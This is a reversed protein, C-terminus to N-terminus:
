SDGLSVPQNGSRASALCADLVRQTDFALRGFAPEVQGELVQNAFTRIMKAEQSNADSNSYEDVWHCRARARMEFDCGLMRYDPNFTEFTLEAGFFPLVFDSLHLNGRTGSINAWQQNETTFACYFSASVGGAFFMEGSFEIPVPQDHKPGFAQRHQRGVVSEPLQGPLLTLALRINYWGLDGLCGLPELQSDGRINSEMFDADALFSFQSTIRRVDGVHQGQELLEVVAAMRASHTFMVGDMFQVNRRAAAACMEAVDAANAGCPKEVLVHKGAEIARLVWPKRVVTPLPLYLADVQPDDILAQYGEFAQPTVALPM